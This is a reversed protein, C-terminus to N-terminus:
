QVIWDHVFVDPLPFYWLASYLTVTNFRLLEAYVDLIQLNWYKPNYGPNHSATEFVTILCLGANFSVKITFPFCKQM